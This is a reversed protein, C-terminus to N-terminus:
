DYDAILMWRPRDTDLTIGMIKLAASLKASWGEELQKLSLERFNVNTAIDGYTEVVHSVLLNLHSDYGARQIQVGASRLAVAFRDHEPIDTLRDYMGLKNAIFKDAVEAFSLLDDEDAFTEEDFWPLKAFGHEDVEMFNWKTESGGLNFGYALLAGASNHM